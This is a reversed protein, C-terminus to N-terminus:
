LSCSGHRDLSHDSVNAGEMRANRGLRERGECRQSQRRGAAENVVNGTGVGTLDLDGAIDAGNEFAAFEGNVVFFFDADFLVLSNKAM